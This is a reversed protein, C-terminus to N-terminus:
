DSLLLEAECATDERISDTLQHTKVHDPLTGGLTHMCLNLMGLEELIMTGVTMELVTLGKLPPAVVEEFLEVLDLDTFSVNICYRDQDKVLRLLVDQLGQQVCSDFYLRDGLFLCM